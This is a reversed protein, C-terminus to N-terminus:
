APTRDHPFDQESRRGQNRQHSWRDRAVHPGREVLSAFAIGPAVPLWPSWMIQTSPPDPKSAAKGLTRCPM